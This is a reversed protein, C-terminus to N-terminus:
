VLDFVTKTVPLNLLVKTLNNKINLINTDPTLLGTESLCTECWVQTVASVGNIRSSDLKLTIEHCLKEKKKYVGGCKDCVVAEFTIM